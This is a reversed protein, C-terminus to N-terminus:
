YSAPLYNYVSHWPIPPRCLFSSGSQILSSIDKIDVVFNSMYKDQKLSQHGYKQAYWPCSYDRSGFWNIKLFNQNLLSPCFHFCHFNANWNIHLDYKLPQYTEWALVVLFWLAKQWNQLRIDDTFNDSHKYFQKICMEDDWSIVAINGITEPCFSISSLWIHTVAIAKFQFVIIKLALQSIVQANHVYVM